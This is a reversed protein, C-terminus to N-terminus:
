HQLPNLRDFEACMKDLKNLIMCEEIKSLKPGSLILLTPIVVRTEIGRRIVHCHPPPHDGPYILIKVHKTGFNM